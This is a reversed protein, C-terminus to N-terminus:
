IIWPQISIVRNGTISTISITTIGGCPQSSSKALELSKEISGAASLYEDTALLTRAMFHHTRAISLTDSIETAYHLSEMLHGLSEEYQEDLYSIEGM